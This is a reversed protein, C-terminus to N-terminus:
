AVFRSIAATFPDNRDGAVMHGADAVDAFEAHPVLALFEEVGRMSLLDSRRGRVLLTPVQVKRAAERLSDASRAAHPPRPGHLFRPDWHWRLRGDDGKRLNRALGSLDRPRRRGPLYAAVAEAAEEVSAFGEPVAAMFSVIRAVGDPEITPAVDVLVLARAIQHEAEAVLAALGGLSAGVIAPRSPLAAAVLRVDESFADLSYDADVPWDSEGHGRLDVATVFLGRGVLTDVTEKWAGRTQGGGHLLLVPPAESPGAVDAVLRVGHAGQFVRQSVNAYRSMAFSTRYVLCRPHVLDGLAELAM